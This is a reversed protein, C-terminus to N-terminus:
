EVLVPLGSLLALISGPSLLTPERTYSGYLYSELEVLGILETERSDIILHSLPDMGPFVIPKTEISWNYTQLTPNKQLTTNSVSGPRTMANYIVHLKYDSGMPKTDSGILTRYCLSFPERKQQTASLGFGLSRTGICRRFEDPYSIASITAAYEESGSVMLYKVGDLYYSEIAGGSPQEQIGNVGFWPIGNGQPDYLVVRDVGAEIKRRAVSNWNIATM